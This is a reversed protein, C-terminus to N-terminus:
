TSKTHSLARTIKLISLNTKKYGQSTRVTSEEVYWGVSGENISSRGLSRKLGVLAVQTSFQKCAGSSRSLEAVKQAATSTLPRRPSENRRPPLEEDGVSWRM